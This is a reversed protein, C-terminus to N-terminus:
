QNLCLRLLKSSAFPLIGISALSIALLISLSTDPIQGRIMESAAVSGFILTPICAPVILAAQLLHGRKMGLTIAAGFAGIASIAPTGALLTLSINLGSSGDLNMILGAMPALICLPLCIQCWHAAIKSYLYGELPIPSLILREITGDEYDRALLTDMTLLSALLAAVWLISPAVLKHISVDPGIGIPVLLAIAFYLVVAMGYRGGSRLSLRFEQIFIEKM